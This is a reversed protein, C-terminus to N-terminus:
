GRHAPVHNPGASLPRALRGGRRPRRVVGRRDREQIAPDALGVMQRDKCIAQLKEDFDGLNALDKGKLAPVLADNIFATAKSLDFVNGGKTEM